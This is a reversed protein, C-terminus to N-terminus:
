GQPTKTENDVSNAAFFLVFSFVWWQWADDHHALTVALAMLLFMGSLMYALKYIIRKM